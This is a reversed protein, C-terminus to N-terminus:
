QHEVFGLIQIAGFAFELDRDFELGTIVTFLLLELPSLAIQRLQFLKLFELKGIAGAQTVSGLSADPVRPALRLLLHEIPLSHTRSRSVRPQRKPHLIQM